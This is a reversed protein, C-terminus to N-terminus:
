GLWGIPGSCTISNRTLDGLNAFAYFSTSANAATWLMWTLYSICSAGRTDRAVRYIQPLYSVIRLTRIEGGGSLRGLLLGDALLGLAQHGLRLRLQHRLRLLRRQLAPQLPRGLRAIM